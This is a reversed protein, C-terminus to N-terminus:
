TNRKTSFAQLGQRLAAVDLGCDDSVHICTVGLQSVDRINRLEDDFFLMDKYDVGSQEKISRLLCDVYM